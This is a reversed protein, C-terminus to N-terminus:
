EILDLRQRNAVERPRFVALRTRPTVLRHAQEASRAIRRRYTLESGDELPEHVVNLEALGLFRVRVLEGRENRYSGNGQRGFRMAKRYAEAPSDARVLLTNVHVTIEQHRGVRIAEVCDALYWEADEPIFAPLRRTM